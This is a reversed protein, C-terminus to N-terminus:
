AREGRQDHNYRPSGAAALGIWTAIRDQKLAAMDIAVRQKVDSEDMRPYAPQTAHM